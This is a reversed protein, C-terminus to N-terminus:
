RAVSVQQIPGFIRGIEGEFFARTVSARNGAEGHYASRGNALPFGAWIRALNDMFRSASLEGNVFSNYGADAILIDALRDQVEPTFRMAPSLGSRALLSKLTAPIIQYQGIAHHQNPTAEIWALIEAVTMETPKKSPRQKASWHIADYGRKPSEALRILQRLGDLRSGAAPRKWNTVDVEPASPLSREDFSGGSAWDAGVVRKTLSAIQPASTDTWDSKLTTWDSQASAAGSGWVLGSLAMALSAGMARRRLGADRDSVGIEPDAATLSRRELVWGKELLTM